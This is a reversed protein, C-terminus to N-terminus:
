MCCPLAEFFDWSGSERGDLASVCPLWAPVLIDIEFHRYYFLYFYCFFFFCRRLSNNPMKSLIVANGQVAM